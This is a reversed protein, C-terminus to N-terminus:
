AGRRVPDVAPQSSLEGCHIRFSPIPLYYIIVVIRKKSIEFRIENQSLDISGLNHIALTSDLQILLM